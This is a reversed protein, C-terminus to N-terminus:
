SSKNHNHCRSTLWKHVGGPLCVVTGPHKRGEALYLSAHSPKGLASTLSSSTTQGFASTKEYIEVAGCTVVLEDIM